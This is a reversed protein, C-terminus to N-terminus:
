SIAHTLTHTYTNEPQQLNGAHGVGPLQEVGSERLSGVGVPLELVDQGAETLPDGEVGSVLDGNRGDLMELSREVKFLGTQGAISGWRLILREETM